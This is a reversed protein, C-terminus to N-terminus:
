RAPPATRTWWQMMPKVVAGKDYGLPFFALGAYGQEREHALKRTLSRVDEYWGQRWQTGDWYAYHPSEEADRRLGHKRALQTAVLRDNPMLESPTDAFTLLRARGRTTAGAEASDAPWEWGYLPVSLLVRRAAVGLAELRALARPVAAPNKSRRTVLPGTTNSEPWHADYIQAVWYDMREAADRDYPRFTDSAPFFASLRKSHKRREADLAALWHRFGEIAAPRAEAYGEIDLHIGDVFQRKLLAAVAALLRARRESDGFLADFHAPEFLTFTLDLPLQTPLALTHWDRTGINAEADITADFLAVRRLAGLPM